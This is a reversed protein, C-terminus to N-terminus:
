KYRVKKVINGEVTKCKSERGKDKEEKQMWKLKESKTVGKEGGGGADVNTASCKLKV